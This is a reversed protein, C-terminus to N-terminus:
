PTSTIIATQRRVNQSIHQFQRRRSLAQLWLHLQLRQAETFWNSANATALLMHVNHEYQDETRSFNEYCRKLANFVSERCIYGPKRQLFRCILSSLRPVSAATFGYEYDPDFEVYPTIRSSHIETKDLEERARKLELELKKNKSEASELDRKMRKLQLELGAVRCNLEALELPSGIRSSHRGPRINGRSQSLRPTHVTLGLHFVSAAGAESSLGGASNVASFLSGSAVFLADDTKGHFRFVIQCTKKWCFWRWISWRHFFRASQDVLKNKFLNSGTCSRKFRGYQCLCHFDNGAAHLLDEEDRLAAAIAACRM